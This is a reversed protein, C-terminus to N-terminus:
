RKKGSKDILQCILIILDIPLLFVAVIFDEAKISTLKYTKNYLAKRPNNIWGMGKKGYFPNISSKAKRVVKGTTRAKVRNKYNPKRIGSKM